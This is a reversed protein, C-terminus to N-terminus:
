RKFFLHDQTHFSTERTFDAFRCPQSSVLQPATSAFVSITTIEGVTEEDSVCSDKLNGITVM